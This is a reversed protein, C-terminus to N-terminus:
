GPGKSGPRVKGSSAVLKWGLSRTERWCGYFGLMQLALMEHM